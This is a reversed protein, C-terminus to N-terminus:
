LKNLNWNYDKYKISANANAKVNSYKNIFTILNTQQTFDNKFWDFIQSLEVFDAHIHNRVPDNIFDKIGKTLLQEINNETFAKNILAPCSISACNVAVHIRPDNYKKRLIEHEIHNLTYTKKGVKVFPLDWASKGNEKIKTISTIPYNNLILKITYANYVNVWFAKTKNKSWSQQPSTNNLYTLYTDLKTKDKLFADYNVGGKSTVHSTLLQNWIESQAFTQTSIFILIALITQKIM